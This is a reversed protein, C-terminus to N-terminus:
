RASAVPVLLGDRVLRVLIGMTQPRAQWPLLTSADLPANGTVLEAFSALNAGLRFEEGAAYFWVGADKRRLFALCPLAVRELRGGRGLFGRLRAPNWRATPRPIERHPLTLLRAVRRDLLEDDDTTSRVIERLRRRAAPAIEGPHRSRRAAADEYLSEPEMEALAEALVGGLLDARSPARFGVSFTLCADVATGRHPVRPPLYLLDGPEAVWAAESRFRRLIRLDLNPVLDERARPGREIAWRRRGVGQLLFVDYRDLHPGVGGEPAAYSVMLDDFRWNPLFRFPDLLSATAPVLRDV